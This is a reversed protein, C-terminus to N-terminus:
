APQDRTGSSQVNPPMLCWVTFNHVLVLWRYRLKLLFIRLELFLCRCQLGANVCKLLLNSVHLSLKLCQTRLYTIQRVGQSNTVSRRRVIRQLVVGLVSATKTRDSTPKSTM